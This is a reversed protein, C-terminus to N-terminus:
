FIPIVSPGRTRSLQGITAPQAALTDPTITVNEVSVLSDCSQEACTFDADIRLVNGDGFFVDGSEQVPQFQQYESLYQSLTLGAADLEAVLDVGPSFQNLTNAEEASNAFVPMVVPKAVDFTFKNGNANLDESFRVSKGTLKVNNSLSVEANYVQNGSTTISSGPNLRSATYTLNRATKVAATQTIVNGSIVNIDGTTSVEGNFVVSTTADKIDISGLDLSQYSQTNGDRVTFSGGGSASASLTIDGTPGADLTLSNGGTAVTSRFLIDAGDNNSDIDVEGTLTTADDFTVTGDNTKVDGGTTIGGDADFTVSGTNTTIDGADAIVLTGSLDTVVSGAGNVTIPANLALNTGTIDFGSSGSTTVAGNLTTTGTGASQKFSAASFAADATVNTASNITVAGLATVGGVVGDFDINANGATLGLAQAGNLLDQFTITGTGAGTGIDATGVDLSVAGGFTINGGVTTIDKNSITAADLTVTGAGTLAIDGDVDTRTSTTFDVSGTSGAVGGTVTTIASSAVTLDNDNITAVGTFTVNGTGATITLDQDGATGTSANIGLTSGFEVAGAGAGTGVAVAGAGDYVVAGSFTINGGVTTIDKSTVNAADLTM